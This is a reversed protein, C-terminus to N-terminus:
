GGLSKKLQEIEPKGRLMPNNFLPGMIDKMIQKPDVQKKTELLDIMQELLKTQYKLEQLIEESKDM